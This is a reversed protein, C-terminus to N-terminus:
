AKKEWIEWRWRRCPLPRARSLGAHAPTGVGGWTRRLDQLQLFHMSSVMIFSSSTCLFWPPEKESFSNSVRLMMSGLTPLPWQHHPQWRQYSFFSHVRQHSDFELSEHWMSWMTDHDQSRHIKDDQGYVMLWEGHALSSKGSFNWKKETGQSKRAEVRRRRAEGEPDLKLRLASIKEEAQKLEQHHQHSAFTKEGLFSSLDSSDEASAGM